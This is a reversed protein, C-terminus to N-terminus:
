RDFSVTSLSRGAGGPLSGPLAAGYERHARLYRDLRADRVIRSGQGVAEVVTPPQAAGDVAAVSTAAQVAALQQPAGPGDGGTPGLMLLLGAALVMVGAAMAVPLTWASRRSRSTDAAVPLPRPVLVAPEDALRTRLRELFARDRGPPSALDESRLVDGILHYAHWSRRVEGEAQAWAVCGRAAAAADGEGDALSSILWRPNSEDAASDPDM